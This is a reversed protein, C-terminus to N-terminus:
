GTDSIEIFLGEEKARERVRWGKSKPRDQTIRYRLGAILGFIFTFYAL